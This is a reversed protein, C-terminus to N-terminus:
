IAEDNKIKLRLYYNITSCLMNIFNSTTILSSILPIHPARLPLNPLFPVAAWPAEPQKAAGEAGRTAARQADAKQLQAVADETGREQPRGPQSRCFPVQAIPQGTLPLYSCSLNLERKM